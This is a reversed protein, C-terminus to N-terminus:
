HAFSCLFLLISVNGFLGKYEVKKQHGREENKVWAGLKGRIEMPYGIGRNKRWSAGM